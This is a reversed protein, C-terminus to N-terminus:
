KNSILMEFVKDIATLVTIPRYNKVDLKDEKKFVPVWEGKKWERPWQSCEICKNYINTLSWSLEEGEIKLIRPSVQDHGTSKHADLNSLVNAVEKRSVHHFNLQQGNPIRNNLIKYVSDHSILKDESQALVDADRINVAVTSFYKACHNAVNRRDKEVSRNVHLFCGALPM